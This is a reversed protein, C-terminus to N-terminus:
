GAVGRHLAVIGGSYNVWDVQAFGASQMREALDQQPPFRRISEVLYRYSAADGAVLQGLRPIVAFSYADYARNLLPNTPRSFELCYFRGGPKLVRRAEALSQALDTVNRLGFAIVYADVSADPYPLAEAVSDVWATPQPWGHDFFRDRGVRLMDISADVVQLDGVMGLKALRQQLLQTIHGTGGAVDLLRIGNFLQVSQVLQRKWVHQWGASMLDNMLDYRRAVKAFVERVAAAKDAAPLEQFGFPSTSPMM